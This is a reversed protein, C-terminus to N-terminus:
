VPEWLKPCIFILKNFNLNRPLIGTWSINLKLLRPQSFCSTDVNGVGEYVWNSFGGQARLYSLANRWPPVGPNERETQPEVELSLWHVSTASLVKRSPPPDAVTRCKMIALRETVKLWLGIYCRFCCLFLGTSYKLSTFGGKSGLERNKLIGLYSEM